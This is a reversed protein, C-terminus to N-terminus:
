RRPMLRRGLRSGHKGALEVAARLPHRRRVARRSRIVVGPEAAAAPDHRAVIARALVAFLNYRELVRRRAERIFPLRKAYAGEAIARRITALSGEFDGIDIPIFSEPPFYDAANPCGHYFPLSYGLFPDALKETWHHPAVHNEIALHYPYADLAEAKDDMPRVGHGFVDLEPLAEGLREVFRVRRAHLTHRQRKSSCVTSIVRTKPPPEMAALADYDVEHGRGIGYFWQLAPQGYIRGPHRLAGPEQSTLVHGFQALYKAGYRSITSPETTVLLTHRRPCALREEGMSFRESGRAPLDHYVVLWDYERAERDLTFACEGWVPTRHPFQRLLARPEIRFLLKVRIPRERAPPGGM